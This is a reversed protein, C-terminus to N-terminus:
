LTQAGTKTNTHVPLEVQGLLLRPLLLERTRRLNQINATVAEPPMAPNLRELASVVAWRFEAFLGIAPPEAEEGPPLPRTLTRSAQQGETYAHPM